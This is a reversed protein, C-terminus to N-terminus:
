IRSINIKYILVTLYEKLMPVFIINKKNRMTNCMLTLVGRFDSKILRENEEVSENVFDTFISM